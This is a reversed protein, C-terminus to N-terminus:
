CVSRGKSDLSYRVCMFSIKGQGEEIRKLTGNITDLKEVVEKIHNNSLSDIKEIVQANGNKKSFLTFLKDIWERRFIAVFMLTLWGVGNISTLIETIEM